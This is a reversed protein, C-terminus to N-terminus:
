AVVRPSATRRCNDSVGSLAAISGSDTSKCTKRVCAVGTRRLFALSVTVAEESQGLMLYIDTQLCAVRAHEVTTAARETLAALREKALPLQGTLLECEARNLALAFSLAHRRQWCEEDLLEGGATFYALASAYATSAKARQGALLNLEALQER